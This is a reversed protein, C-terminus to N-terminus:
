GTNQKGGNSECTFVTVLDDIVTAGAAVQFGSCVHLQHSVWSLDLDNPIALVENRNRGGGDGFDRIALIDVQSDTCCDPQCDDRKSDTGQHGKRFGLFCKTPKVQTLPSCFPAKGHLAVLVLVAPDKRCKLSNGSLFCYVRVRHRDLVLRPVIERVKPHPNASRRGVWMDLTEPAFEKAQKPLSKPPM